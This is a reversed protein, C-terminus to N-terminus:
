CSQDSTPADPQETSESADNRKPAASEAQVATPLVAAAAAAAEAADPAGAHESRAPSRNGPVGEPRQNAAWAAQSVLGRLAALEHATVSTRDFIGRYMRMVSAARRPDTYGIHLMAAELQAYFREMQDRTAADKGTPLAPAVADKGSAGEASRARTALAVEYVLVVVAQALNLSSYGLTPIVVQAQCRTLEDNALGHDEPGFLVATGDTLLPAAARPEVVPYNEAARDRASTGMVLTTGAIAEELTGVVRAAHLVDDAHSALAEARHDIRCRPAVLVLEDLGFNKMARAAAGVNAAAKTRVLVIRPGPM